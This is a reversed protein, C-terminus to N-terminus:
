RKDIELIATVAVKNDRIRGSFDISEGAEFELNSLTFEGLVENFKGAFTSASSSNILTNLDNYPLKEKSVVVAIVDKSGKDDPVMSYDKPFLRTGTIGCYASHKATYPFLVYSSGDTEQGFVYTYCESSNTIAVKFKQGVNLPSRTRFVNPGKQVMYILSQSENDVLGFKAALENAKAPDAQGMPYLGYAEKVFYDFDKYSVWSIGSEGWREGWSNMIQFAGGGLNDDYGIACMAHGSYGVMNYDNRTPQWIKRGEMSRMFSGGVQMGIVVPAGQALNQKIAQIDPKYNNGGLTLRQYGKIRYNQAERIESSSPRASCSREEYPFQSMTLGGNQRMAEMAEGIYAGQCGRLAIQNYLFSPSFAIQNPDANNARAQLITGAAYASSWGVCSGQRGQNLRRPAYRELSVQAPLQNWNGYALPEFVETADYKAEDFEAGFTFGANDATEGGGQSSFMAAGGLFFYWVAGVALLLFLLKPNKRFLFAALLLLLGKNPGRRGPDRPDHEPFNERGGNKPDEEMRIPM